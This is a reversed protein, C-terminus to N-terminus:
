KLHCFKAERGKKIVAAAVPRENLLGVFGTRQGTKIGSLVKHDLWKDIGPYSDENRLIQERFLLLNDSRNRVDNQEIRALRFTEQPLDFESQMPQVQRTM